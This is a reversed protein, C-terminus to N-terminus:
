YNKFEKNIPKLKKHLPDWDTKTTTSNPVLDKLKHQLFDWIKNISRCKVEWPESKATKRKSLQTWDKANNLSFKWRIKVKLVLKRSELRINTWNEGWSIMKCVFLRSNTKFSASKVLQFDWTKKLQGLKRVWVQTRELCNKSEKSTPKQNKLLAELDTKSNM